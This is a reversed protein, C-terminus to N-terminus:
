WMDLVLNLTTRTDTEQKGTVPQHDYFLNFKVEVSLRGVLQATLTNEWNLRWDAGDEVNFLAELGTKFAVSENTHIDWGAYLRASHYDVRRDMAGHWNDWTYDYGAEAWLRHKEERIFNYQYGVQAQIRADLGAFTDWRHVLSGFVAHQTTIFFDYRARTLLNRANTLYDDPNPMTETAAPVARGFNGSSEFGFGNRGRVITLNTGGSVSYSQTNGTNLVAGVSATWNQSNETPATDNVHETNQAANTPQAFAGGSFSQSVLLALLTARTTFRM